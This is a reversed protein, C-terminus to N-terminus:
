FEATAVQEAAEILEVLLDGLAEYTDQLGPEEAIRDGALEGFSAFAEAFGALARANGAIQAFKGAIVARGAKGQGETKGGEEVMVVEYLAALAELKARTIKRQGRGSPASFEQALTTLAALSVDEDTPMWAADELAVKRRLRDELARHLIIEMDQTVEMGELSPFELSVQFAARKAPSKETNKFHFSITKTTTSM